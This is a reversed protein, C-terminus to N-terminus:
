GKNLYNQFRMPCKLTWKEKKKEKKSWIKIETLYLIILYDSRQLAFRGPNELIRTLFVFLNM